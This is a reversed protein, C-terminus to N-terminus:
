KLITIAILMMLEDDDKDCRMEDKRAYRWKQRDDTCRYKM